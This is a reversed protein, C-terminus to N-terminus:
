HKNDNNPGISVFGNYHDASFKPFQEHTSKVGPSISCAQFCVDASLLATDGFSKDFVELTVGTKSADASIGLGAANPEGYYDDYSLDKRAELDFKYGCVSTLVQPVSTFTTQFLYEAKRDDADLTVQGVECMRALEKEKVNDLNNSSEMIDQDILEFENDLVQLLKEKFDKVAKVLSNIQREQEVDARKRGAWLVEIEEQADTNNLNLAVLNFTQNVLENLQEELIYIQDELSFIASTQLIDKVVLDPFTALTLQELAKKELSQRSELSSLLESAAKIESLSTTLRKYLKDIVDLPEEHEEYGHGGRYAPKRPGQYPGARKDHYSGGRVYSKEHHDPSVGYGRDRYL